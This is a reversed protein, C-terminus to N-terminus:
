SLRNAILIKAIGPRANELQALMDIMSQNADSTFRRTEDATALGNARDSLVGSLVEATNEGSDTRGYLSMFDAQNIRNKLMQGFYAGADTKESMDVIEDDELHSGIGINESLAHGFEHAVVSQYSYDDGGVISEVKAAVGLLPGHIVVNISGYTPSYSGAESGFGSGAATLASDSVTLSELAALNVFDKPLASLVDIYAGLAKKVAVEKGDFQIDDGFGATLGYQEAFQEFGTIADTNSHAEDIAKRAQEVVGSSIYQEPHEARDAQVETVIGRYGENDARQFLNVVTAKAEMESSVRESEDAIYEDQVATDYDEFAIGDMEDPITVPSIDIAGAAVSGADSFPDAAMDIFGGGKVTALLATAAMVKKMRGKWQKRKEAKRWDAIEARRVTEEATRIQAMAAFEEQSPMTILGTNAESSNSQTTNLTESM